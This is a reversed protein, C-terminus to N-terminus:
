RASPIPHSIAHCTRPRYKSLQEQSLTHGHGGCSIASPAQRTPTTM